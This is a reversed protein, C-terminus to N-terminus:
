SSQLLPGNLISPTTKEGSTLLLHSRLVLSINFLTTFIRFLQDLRFNVKSPLYVIIYDKASDIKKVNIIM